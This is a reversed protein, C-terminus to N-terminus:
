AARVAVLLSIRFADLPRVYIVIRGRIQDIGTRPVEEKKDLYRINLAAEVDIRKPRKQVIRATARGCSWWRAQTGLMSKPQRRARLTGEDTMEREDRERRSTQTPARIFVISKPDDFVTGVHDM